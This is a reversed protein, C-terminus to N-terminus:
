LPWPFWILTLRLYPHNKCLHNMPKEIQTLVRAETDPPERVNYGRAKAMGLPVSRTQEDVSRAHYLNHPRSSNKVYKCARSLRNRQSATILPSNMARESLRRNRSIASREVM